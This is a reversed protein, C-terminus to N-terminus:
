PITRAAKETEEGASQPTAEDSSASEPTAEAEGDSAASDEETEIEPEEIVILHESPEIIPDGRESLEVQLTGGRLEVDASSLEFLVNIAEDEHKMRMVPRADTGDLWLKGKGWYHGLQNRVVYADTM